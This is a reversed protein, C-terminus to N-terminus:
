FRCKKFGKSTCVRALPSRSQTTHFSPILGPPLPSFSLESIFRHTCQEKLIVGFRSVPLQPPPVGYVVICLCHAFFCFHFDAHFGLRRLLNRSSRIGSKQPIEPIRRHPAFFNVALLQHGRHQQFHRENQPSPAVSFRKRHAIGAWMPPNRK